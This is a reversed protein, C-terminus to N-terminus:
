RDPSDGHRGYTLGELDIVMAFKWAIALLAVLAARLIWKKMAELSGQATWTM